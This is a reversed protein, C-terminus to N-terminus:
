GFLSLQRSMPRVQEHTPQPPPPEPDVRVPPPPPAVPVQETRVPVPVPAANREGNEPSWLESETLDTKKRTLYGVLGITPSGRLPALIPDEETLALFWLPSYRAEYQGSEIEESMAGAFSLREFALIQRALTAPLYDIVSGNLYVSQVGTPGYSIRNNYHPVAHKKGDGITCCWPGDPPSLLWDRATLRESDTFPHWIKGDTYHHFSRFKETAEDSVEIQDPSVTDIFANDGVTAPATKLAKVASDWSKRLAATAAPSWRGITGDALPLLLHRLKAPNGTLGYTVLGGKELKKLLRATLIHQPLRVQDCFAWGCPLCVATATASGSKNRDPFTDAVASLPRGMGSVSPKGCWWCIGTYPITDHTTPKGAADWFLAAPTLIPM